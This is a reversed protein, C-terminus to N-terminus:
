NVSPAGDFLPPLAVGQGSLWTGYRRVRRLTWGRFGLSRLAGAVGRLSAAQCWLEVFVEPSPRPPATVVFSGEPLEVWGLGRLRFVNGDRARVAFRMGPLFRHARTVCSCSGDPEERVDRFVTARCARTIHLLMFAPEGDLPIRLGVLASAPRSPPTAPLAPSREKGETADDLAGHQV